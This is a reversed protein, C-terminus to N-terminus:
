KSLKPLVKLSYGRELNDEFFRMVKAKKVSELICRNNKDFIKYFM